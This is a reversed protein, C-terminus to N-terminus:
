RELADAGALQEAAFRRFMKVKRERRTQPVFALYRPDEWQRALREFTKARERKRHALRKKEDDM